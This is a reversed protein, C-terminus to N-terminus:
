DVYEVGDKKDVDVDANSAMPVVVQQPTPLMAENAENRGEDESSSNSDNLLPPESVELAKVPPPTGRKAECGRCRRFCAFFSDRQGEESAFLSSNHGRRGAELGNREKCLECQWTLKHLETTLLAHDKELDKYQRELKPLAELAPLAVTKWLNQAGELERKLSAVEHELVLRGSKLLAVEAEAARVLLSEGETGDHHRRSPTTAAPPPPEETTGPPPPPDDEAEEAARDQPVNPNPHPNPNLHPNPHPNPDARDQPLHCQCGPKHGFRNCSSRQASGETARRKRSAKYSDSVTTSDSM